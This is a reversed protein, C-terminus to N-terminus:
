KYCRFTRKEFDETNTTSKKVGHEEKKVPLSAKSEIPSKAKWTSFREKLSGSYPKKKWLSRVSDYADMRKALIEPKKIEVWEDILHEKVEWPVRIKIQETVILDSLEAFTKVELGKLWEEFYNRLEYLFDAWNGDTSKTHNNFRQVRRAQREFLVLYLSIEKPDFKQMLHRMELKPKALPVTESPKSKNELELQLKKLHFANELEKEDLIRKAEREEPITKKIEIARVEIGLSKELKQLDSKLAKGWFAM